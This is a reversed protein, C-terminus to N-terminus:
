KVGRGVAGDCSTDKDKPAVSSEGVGRLELAVLVSDEGQDSEVDEAVGEVIGGFKEEQLLLIEIVWWVDVRIEVLLKMRVREAVKGENGRLSQAGYALLDYLTTERYDLWPVGLSVTSVYLWVNTSIALM